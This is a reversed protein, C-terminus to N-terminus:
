LEEAEVEWISPNCNDMMMGPVRIKKKLTMYSEPKRM